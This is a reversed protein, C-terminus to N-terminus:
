SVLETRPFVPKIYDMGGPVAIGMDTEIFGPLLPQKRSVYEASPPELVQSCILIVVQYNIGQVFQGLQRDIHEKATKQPWDGVSLLGEQGFEVKHLAQPILDQIEM